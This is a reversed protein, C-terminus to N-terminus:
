LCSALDLGLVDHSLESQRVTSLTRGGESRGRTSALTAASSITSDWSRGSFSDGPRRRPITTVEDRVLGFRRHVSPKRDRVLIVDPGLVRDPVWATCGVPGSWLSSFWSAM